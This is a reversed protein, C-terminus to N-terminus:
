ENHKDNQLGFIGLYKKTMDRMIMEHTVKVGELDPHRQKYEELIQNDFYHKVLSSCVIRCSYSRDNNM